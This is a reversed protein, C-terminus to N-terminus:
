ADALTRSELESRTAVAAPRFGRAVMWIALVVEQVAMPIFLLVQETSSAGIIGYMALLDAVVYLPIAVLGWSAIWLPVMRSQYLLLYFMGAGVCFVLTLVANTADADLVLKGVRVGASSATGPGVAMADGMLLAEDADRHRGEVRQEEAGQAETVAVQECWDQGM